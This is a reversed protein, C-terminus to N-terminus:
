FCFNGDIDAAIETEIETEVIAEETVVAIEEATAVVAVVEVAEKFFLSVQKSNSSSFPYACSPIEFFDPCRFILNALSSM